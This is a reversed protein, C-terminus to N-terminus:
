NYVSEADGINHQWNKDCFMKLDNCKWRIKPKISSKKNTISMKQEETTKRYKNTKKKIKKKKKVKKTTAVGVDADMISTYKM